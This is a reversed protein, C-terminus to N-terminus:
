IVGVYVQRKRFSRVVLASSTTTVPAAPLVVRLKFQSAELSRLNYALCGTSMNLYNKKGKVRLSKCTCTRPKWGHTFLGQYHMSLCWNPTSVCLPPLVSFSCPVASKYLRTVLIKSINCSYKRRYSLLQWSILKQGSKNLTPPKKETYSKEM